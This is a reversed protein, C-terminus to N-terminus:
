IVFKMVREATFIISGESPKGQHMGYGPYEVILAPHHLRKVIRKVLVSAQLLNEGNSHFYLILKDSSCRSPVLM